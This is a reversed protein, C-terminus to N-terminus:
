SDKNVEIQLENSLQLEGMEQLANEGASLSQRIMDQNTMFGPPPGQQQHQMFMPQHNQMFPPPPMMQQNQMFMPQHNQMFPPGQQNQPMFMSSPNQMFPSPNQNSMYPSSPPAANQMFTSRSPQNQKVFPTISNLENRIQSMENENINQSMEIESTTPSLSNTPSDKRDKGDIIPIAVLKDKIKSHIIQANEFLKTYEGYKEELYDKGGSNRHKRDLTLTKYIDVALLYFNKSAVLETEMSVQIGLFLEISGIISCLLALMCNLVSIIGQNMYPQLGVAIVSNFGSIIIIPIKYYKLQGKFYIFNKKHYDSMISANMRIAELVNEIDSSWNQPATSYNPSKSPIKIKPLM